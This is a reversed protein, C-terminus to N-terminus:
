QIPGNEGYGNLRLLYDREDQLCAIRDEFDNLLSKYDDKAADYGNDFGEQWMKADDLIKKNTTSIAMDRLDKGRVLVQGSLMDILLKEGTESDWCWKAELRKEPDVKEM